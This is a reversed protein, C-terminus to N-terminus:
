RFPALDIKKKCTCTFVLANGMGLQAIAYLSMKHVTNCKTCAFEYKDLERVTTTTTTVTKGEIKVEEKKKM